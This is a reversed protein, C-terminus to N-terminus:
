ALGLFDRWRPVDARAQALGAQYSAELRDVRKERNNVPMRHPHFLLARGDRELQELQDLTENYSRWRNIMAEAVLPYRRFHRRILAPNRPPRKRYGRERSLVVFFREYGDTQAADLAIGGTPGLAGDFYHRDGITVVPMLFPMTSSARVRVMLDAMTPMDDKSWYVLRGTESEFGGIRVRAPNAHFTAFDFPLAQGPLSTEEYIYHANFLGQGRLFTAVNGFNPDAAFEVFSRKGREADRSVYNCVCSSGASIGGVWPFDLGAELLATVVATSYSARMGGGEFILATDAIPHALPTTMDDQPDAGSDGTWGVVTGRETCM